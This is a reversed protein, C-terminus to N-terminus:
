ELVERERAAARLRAVFAGPRRWLRWRSAGTLVFRARATRLELRALRGAALAAAAPEVVRALAADCTVGTVARPWCAVLNGPPDRLAAAFDETGAAHPVGAHGACAALLVDDGCALAPPAMPAPLTGAGWLWVGNIPARGAAIRADNIACDHLLMQVETVFRRLEGLGRREAIGPELPQGALRAPSGGGAPPAAPLTLYWREAARGRHFRMGDAGFTDNLLAILADAEDDALGISAADFLLVRTADARLHVPDARLLGAAQPLTGLDYAATAAALPPSADGPVEIGLLALVGREDDTDDAPHESARALLGALRRASSTPWAALLQELLDPARIVCGPAAQRTTAHESRSDSM